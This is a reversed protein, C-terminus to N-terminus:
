FKAQAVTVKHKTSNGGNNWRGNPGGGSTRFRWGTSNLFKRGNVVKIVGDIQHLPFGCLSYNNNVVDYKFAHGELTLSVPRNDELATLQAPNLPQKNDSCNSGYMDYIAQAVRSINIPSLPSNADNMLDRLPQVTNYPAAPNSVVLGKYTKGDLTVYVYGDNLGAWDHTLEHAFEGRNNNAVHNGQSYMLITNQSSSSWEPSMKREADTDVHTWKTIVGFGNATYDARADEEKEYVGVDYIFNFVVPVASGTADIITSGVSNTNNGTFYPTPNGVLSMAEGVNKMNDMVLYVRQHVTIQMVGGVMQTTIIPNKGEYDKCAIPSNIAYSYPSLASYRSELPDKSMFRGLREDYLRAGFDAYAGHDGNWKDEEKGNFGFRYQDVAGTPPYNRGPMDM